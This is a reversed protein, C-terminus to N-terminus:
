KAKELYRDSVVKLKIRGIEPNFKEEVTQIVIGERINQAGLIESDGNSLETLNENYPGEYLVPVWKIPWCDMWDSGSTKCFSNMKENVEIWSLFRGDKSNWLDFARFFYDNKEAGYKLEQVNGFVEGYITLEQNAICFDEIWANNKLCKWWLNSEDQKKWETKSGCHMEENVFAFRANAGHIKETILVQEGDEFLHKYRQWADVDYKPRFGEPAKTRQGGMTLSEPPEYRTVGLIESVDEGIKSDNPANVLLGQSFIGRFRRVKIRTHDGLFEFEPTQPVVSDPPIYAGINKGEWDETKVIVQYGWIKVISLSDANPHEELVVPVVEVKHTSKKDEM